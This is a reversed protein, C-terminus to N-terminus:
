PRSPHPPAAPLDAAHVLFVEGAEDDGLWTLPLDPLAAEVAARADGVEVLLLGRPALRARAGAVIRRVLDLGDAGGALALRPEWRYEPPLREMAAETVYPPNSLILDYPGAPLSAYLDSQVLRVRDEVRHRRLNRAAVALAATSLDSADVRLRPFHRALAVAICGSGTCLDLARGPRAPDLWPALGEQILPGLHSRPVIVREDVYFPLGAFWAEGTLYAAPKRTAIRAEVLERVRQRGRADVRTDLHRGPEDVPLGLAHHVLWAAEDLPNDTGHGYALGARDLRRAAWRLCEGVTKLSAAM